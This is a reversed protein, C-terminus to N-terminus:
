KRKIRRKLKQLFKITKNRLSLILPCYVSLFYLVKNKRNLAPLIVKKYKKLTKRMKRVDFSLPKQQEFCRLFCGFADNKQINAYETRRLSDENQWVLERRYFRTWFADFDYQQSANNSHIRNLYWHQKLFVANAGKTLNEYIFYFDEGIYLDTRFRTDGILSRRMMTGGILNIPTTTHFFYHLAEKHEHYTTEPKTSDQLFHARTQSWYKDLCAKCSTGAISAHNEELGKVLTELLNPHIIDDSDLFFIYEGKAADIGVNRASSVGGHSSSFIKIRQDKAAIQQCTELTNDTSGDDIIIIEFDSYSQSLISNICEEVVNQRNYVPIIISVSNNKTDMNKEM